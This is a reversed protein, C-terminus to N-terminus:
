TPRGSYCPCYPSCTFLFLIHVIKVKTVGRPPSFPQPRQGRSSPRHHTYAAPHRSLGRPSTLLLRHNWPPPVRSHQSPEPPQARGFLFGGEWGSREMRIRLAERLPRPPTKSRAVPIGSPCPGSGHKKPPPITFYSNQLCLRNSFVAGNGGELVGRRGRRVGRSDEEVPAQSAWYPNPVPM